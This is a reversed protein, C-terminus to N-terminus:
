KYIVLLTNDVNNNPYPIILIKAYKYNQTNIYDQLPKISERKIDEVIYIGDDKLYKLSNQLFSINAEAEHLGDEIIIDFKKNITNFMNNIDNENTQDCYYTKIKDTQFLIRSDIDAGYIDSNIFYKQWGYLSAGPKGNSGMNSPVDLNNTGLGLEFINLNDNKINKFLHHYFTTYNHQSLGKDSGENFMINCLETPKLYLNKEYYETISEEINMKIDIIYNNHCYKNIYKNYINKIIKHGKNNYHAIIDEKVVLEDINYGLLKIEKIPNIYLIKHKECINELLQSLEFRSGHNYTVIHGIIIIKKNLLKKIEIIDNEIEDDSQKTIIIGDLHKHDHLIHHVYRDKFKYCYRSAIELIFIDSNEFNLQKEETLIYPQNYLIPTRFIYVTDESKINNYKYFNIIELIEKTYHPYSLDFHVDTLTYDEYLSDQRCSGLLTIKM